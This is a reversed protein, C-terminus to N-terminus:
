KKFEYKIEIGNEEVGGTYYIINSTGKPINYMWYFGIMKDLKDIFIWRRCYGYKNCM